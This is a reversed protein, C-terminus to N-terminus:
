LGPFRGSLAKVVREVITIVVITLRIPQRSREVLVSPTVCLCPFSNPPLSFPLSPM